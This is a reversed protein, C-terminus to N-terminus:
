KLYEVETGCACVYFLQQEQKPTCQRVVVIALGWGYIDVLKM